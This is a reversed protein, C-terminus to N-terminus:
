HVSVPGNRRVGKGLHLFFCGTIVMVALVLCNIGFYPILPILSLGISDIGLWVGVLGLGTALRVMPDPHQSGARIVSFKSSIPDISLDEYIGENKIGLAHRYWLSMVIPNKDLRLPEACKEESACDYTKIFYSDIERYECIVSKRNRKNTIKVFSRALLESRAAWIWGSSSEGHLAAQIYFKSSQLVPLNPGVSM